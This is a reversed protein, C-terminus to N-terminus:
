AHEQPRPLHRDRDVLPRLRGPIWQGRESAARRSEDSAHVSLYASRDEGGSLDIWEVVGIGSPLDRITERLVTGRLTRLLSRDDLHDTHRLCVDLRFLGEVVEEVAEAVEADDLVFEIPVEVGIEALQALNTTPAARELDHILTWLGPDDSGGQSRARARLREIAERRAQRKRRMIREIRDPHFM